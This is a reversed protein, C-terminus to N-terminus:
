TPRTPPWNPEWDPLPWHRSVGIGPIPPMVEPRDADVGHRIAEFRGSIGLKRSVTSVYSRATEVGCGMSDAIQQRSAGSVWLCLVVWERRTLRSTM